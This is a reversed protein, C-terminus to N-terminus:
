PALADAITSALSRLYAGYTPEGSLQEVALEVVAAGSDSAIAAAVPEPTGVEVLIAPVQQTRIAEVLDALERASVDGQSSLGPVIAGILEFGYRAAFYGLSEHGTVLRRSEPPIASLLAAIDADLAELGAAFAEVRQGADIGASALVPGLALVVDRVAMPDTWFHPDQAGHDHEDSSRVGIHDTAIFVTVGDSGAQELIDSLSVELGLGNAVVLDAGFIREADPASPQWTHPDASADILVTVDAADGLVETVIAGLIQTTVIVDPREPGSAGQANMPWVVSLAMALAVMLMLVIGGLRGFPRLSSAQRTQNMQTQNM